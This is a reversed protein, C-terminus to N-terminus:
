IRHEAIMDRNAIWYVPASWWHTCSPFSKPAGTNRHEPLTSRIPRASGDILPWVRDYNGCALTLRRGATRHM